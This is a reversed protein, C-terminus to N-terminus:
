TRKKSNEARNPNIKEPTSAMSYLDKDVYSQTMENYVKDKLEEKDKPKPEKFFARSDAWKKM